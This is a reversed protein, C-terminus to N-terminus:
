LLIAGERWPSNRPKEVLCRPPLAVSPVVSRGGPGGATAARKGVFHGQAAGRKMAVPPVGDPKSTQLGVWVRM